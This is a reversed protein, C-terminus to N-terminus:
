LNINNGQMYTKPAMTYRNAKSVGYRVLKSVNYKNPGPGVRNDKLTTRM